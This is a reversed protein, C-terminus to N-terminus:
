AAGPFSGRTANGMRLLTTVWTRSVNYEGLPSAPAM